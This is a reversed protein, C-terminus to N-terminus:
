GVDDAPSEARSWPPHAATLLSVAVIGQESAPRPHPMHEARVHEAARGADTILCGDGADSCTLPADLTGSVTERVRLVFHLRVGAPGSLLVACRGPPSDHVGSPYVRLLFRGTGAVRFPAALSSGRAMVGSWLRDPAESPRTWFAELLLAVPSRRRHPPAGGRWSYFTPVYAVELPVISVTTEECGVGAAAEAGADRRAGGSVCDVLAEDAPFRVGGAVWCGRADAAFPWHADDDGGGGRGLAAASASPRPVRDEGLTELEEEVRQHHLADDPASM